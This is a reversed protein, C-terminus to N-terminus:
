TESLSIIIGFQIVWNDKTGKWWFGDSQMGLIPVGDFSHTTELTQEASEGNYIKIDRNSCVLISTEIKGEANTERHSWRGPKAEPEAQCCYKGPSIGIDAHDNSNRFQIYVIPAEQLQKLTLGYLEQLKLNFANGGCQSVRRM